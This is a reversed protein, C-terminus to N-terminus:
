QHGRQAPLGPVAPEQRTARLFAGIEIVGRFDDGRFDDDRFDDDRVISISSPVRRKVRLTM